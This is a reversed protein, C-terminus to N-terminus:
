IVYLENFFVTVSFNISILETSYVQTFIAAQCVIIFSSLYTSIIDHHIIYNNCLYIFLGNASIVAMIKSLM